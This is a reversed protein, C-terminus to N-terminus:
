WMDESFKDSSNQMAGHSVTPNTANVAEDDAAVFVKELADIYSCAEYYKERTIDQYVSMAARLSMCVAINRNFVERQDWSDIQAASFGREMLKSRILSYADQNKEAVISPWQSADKVLRNVDTWLRNACANLIATDTTYTAM